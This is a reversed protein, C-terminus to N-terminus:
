YPSIVRLRPIMQFHRVNRTYLTLRRNLATAAILADPIDLGHSLWYSEMLSCALRSSRPTVPLITMAAVLQQTKALEGKDRCGVILEMTSIVSIKVGYAQKQGAVFSLGAPVGRIADILINTDILGDPNLAPAM